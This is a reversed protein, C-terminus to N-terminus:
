FLGPVLRHRVETVYAQYAPDRMLLREESILRPIQIANCIIYLVVNWLSPNLATFGMHSMMYGAYMPHRVFRYPGSRKLGRHAPVCGFSRGLTLKAHIEIVIGTLVIFAGAAAHFLPESGPRVLLPLCTATLAVLWDTLRSSVVVAPRRVFVFLLVLGESPLLLLSGIRYTPIRMSAVVRVVLWGYLALIVAREIVELAITWVRASRLHTVMLAPKEARSTSSALEIM